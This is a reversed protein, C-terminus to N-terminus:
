HKCSSEALLSAARASWTQVTGSLLDSDLAPTCSVSRQSHMATGAPLAQMSEPASVVWDEVQGESALVCDAGQCCSHKVRGGTCCTWARAQTALPAPGGWHLPSGPWQKVGRTVWLQLM